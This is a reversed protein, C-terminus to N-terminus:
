ELNMWIIFFLHCEKKSTCSYIHIFFLFLFNRISNITNLTVRIFCNRFQGMFNKQFKLTFLPQCYVLHLYFIILRFATFTILFKEVNPQPKMIHRRFQWVTEINLCLVNENRISNLYTSNVIDPNLNIYLCWTNKTCIMSLTVNWTPYRVSFSFIAM